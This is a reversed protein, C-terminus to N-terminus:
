CTRGENRVLAARWVDDAGLEMTVTELLTQTLQMEAKEGTDIDVVYRESATPDLCSTVTAIARGESTTEREGVIVETYVTDGVLMLNEDRLYAISEIVNFSEEGTTVYQTETWDTLDPDRAYKELVRKYAEWGERIARQEDSQDPDPPPFSQSFTPSPEM